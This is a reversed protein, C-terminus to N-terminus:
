IRIIRSQKALLSALRVAEALDDERYPLSLFESEFKESYKTM